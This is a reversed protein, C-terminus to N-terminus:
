KLISVSCDLFTPLIIAFKYYQWSPPALSLPPPSAEGDEKDERAPWSAPRPDSGLKQDLFAWWPSIFSPRAGILGTESRRGDTTEIAGEPAGKRTTGDRELVLTCM